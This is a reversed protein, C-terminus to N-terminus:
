SPYQFRALGPQTPETQVETNVTERVPLRVRRSQNPNQYPTNTAHVQPHLLRRYDVPQIHPHPLIYAPVDMYHPPPFPPMVMGYGMGPLGVFPNYSFPMPWQYHFFPPPAPAHIYLFPRSPFQHQSQSPPGADQIATHLGPDQQGSNPPGNNNQSPLNRGNAGPCSMNLRCPPTSPPNSHFGYWLPPVVM